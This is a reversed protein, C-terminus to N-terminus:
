VKRLLKRPHEGRKYPDIYAPEQVYTRLYELTPPIQRIQPPNDRMGQIRWYRQWGEMMTGERQGQLLIRTMM